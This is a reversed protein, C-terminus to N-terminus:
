NTYNNTVVNIDIMNVVRDGNVDALLYLDMYTAVNLDIETCAYVATADKLDIKGDAVYAANVDYTQRLTVCDTTKSLAVDIMEATVAGEVLTAYAGYYEVYFMKVGNYAYGADEGYVLVLSYGQVYDAVIEATYNLSIKISETDGEVVNEVDTIALDKFQLVNGDVSIQNGVSVSDIDNLAVLTYTALVGGEGKYLNTVYIVGDGDVDAECAFKTADYTFTYEASYYGGDISITANLSETAKLVTKDVTIDLKYDALEYEVKALASAYNSETGGNQQENFIYMDYAAFDIDSVDISMTGEAETVATITGYKVAKGTLKSKLVYSLYENEGVVAGSYDIILTDGRRDSSNLVFARAADNLTLAYANDGVTRYMLVADPNLNFAPRIGMHKNSPQQYWEGGGSDVMGTRDYRLLSSLWYQAAEGNAYTAKLSLGNAKLYTNLDAATPLFYTDNVFEDSYARSKKYTWISPSIAAGNTYGARSTLLVAAQEAATFGMDTAFSRDNAGSLIVRGEGDTDASTSEKMDTVSFACYLAAKALSNAQLELKNYVWRADGENIKQFTYYTVGEEFSELEGVRIYDSADHYCILTEGEAPAETVLNYEGTAADYTYWHDPIWSSADVALTSYHNFEHNSLRFEGKVYYVVGPTPETATVTIKEFYSSVNVGNDDPNGHEQMSRNYIVEYDGIGTMYKRIDSAQYGLNTPSTNGADGNYGDPHYLVDLRTFEGTRNWVYDGPGYHANWYTGYGYVYESLLYMGKAGNGAEFEKDLLRWPISGYYITSYEGNGVGNLADATFYYEADADSAVADTTAAIVTPIAVSVAMLVSLAFALLKKTKM